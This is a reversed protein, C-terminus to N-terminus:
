GIAGDDEAASEARLAIRHALQAEVGRHGAILLDHGVRAEGPLDDGKGEGMDAIDAGIGLVHLARRRPSQATDHALIHRRRGVEAVDLREIGPELRVPTDTKGTHIGASHGAHDALLARGIDHDRMIRLAFEIQSRQVLLCLGPRPKFAHIEGDLYGALLTVPGTTGPPEAKAVLRHFHALPGM